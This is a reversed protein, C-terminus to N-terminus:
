IRRNLHYFIITYLLICKSQSVQRCFSRQFISISSCKSSTLKLYIRNFFYPSYSMSHITTGGFYAVLYSTPVTLWQEMAKSKSFFSNLFQSAVRFVRDIVNHTELFRCLSFLKSKFLKLLLTIFSIM